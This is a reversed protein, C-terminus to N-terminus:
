TGPFAALAAVLSLCIRIRDCFAGRAGVFGYSAGAPIALSEQAALVARAAAIDARGGSARAALAHAVIERATCIVPAAAVRAQSRSAFAAFPLTQGVRDRLVGLAGAGSRNDARVGLAMLEQACCVISAAATGADGWAAHTALVHVAAIERAACSRVAAGVDADCVSGRKSSEASTRHPVKLL